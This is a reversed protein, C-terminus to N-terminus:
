KEVAEDVTNCNKIIEIIMELQLKNQKNTMGKM